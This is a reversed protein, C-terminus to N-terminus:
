CQCISTTLPQGETGLFVLKCLTSFFRQLWQLATVHRPQAFFSDSFLLATHQAHSLSVTCRLLVSSVIGATDCFTFLFWQLAQLAIVHWPQPFFSGLFLLATHQAHSLSVTCKLLLASTVGATGCLMSFYQPLWQLATVHRPQASFSDSYLLATYLFHALSVTFKLLAWSVVGATDCGLSLSYWFNQFNKRCKEGIERM